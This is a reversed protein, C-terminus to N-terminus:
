FDVGLGLTITAQMGSQDTSDCFTTMSGVDACDADTGGLDDVSSGKMALAGELLLAFVRYRLRMGGFIRQRYIDDQQQFVFNMNQDGAVHPTKDIVESRPIVILFNYGVYPALNFTGGIGLEKSISADLSVVTLDLDPEGMMRSVAGRLALSPLPLGHYGEHLAIKGYGQAALLNSGMLHVMGAGVEFSPLPLWMGKRAFVGVTSVVGSGHTGDGGSQAHPERVRWYSAGNSIGTFGIDAAFQFGGFGLTDSPALLRPALVVGLESVLSRFEVNNGTVGGNREVALRSLVIDNDGAAAPSIWSVTAIATVVAQLAALVLRRM